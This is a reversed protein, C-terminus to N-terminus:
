KLILSIPYHDSSIKLHRTFEKGSLGASLLIRDIRRSPENDFKTNAAYRNQIVDYTFEQKEKGHDTYKELLAVEKDKDGFNFDGLIIFQATKTEKEIERLQVMRKETDDLMSDLHVNIVDVDADGRKITTVLAVRGMGSTLQIVRTKVIPTKALTVNGYRGHIEGFIKLGNDKCFVVLQDYFFPTVEQLAILDANLEKIDKLVSGYRGDRGSANDFWVNFSALELEAAGGSCMLLLVILPRLLLGSWSPFHGM